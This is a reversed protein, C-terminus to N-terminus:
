AEEGDNGGGCWRATPGLKKGPRARSGRTLGRLTEESVM